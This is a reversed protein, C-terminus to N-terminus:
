GRGTAPPTVTASRPAILAASTDNPQMGTQISGASCARKVGGVCYVGRPCPTQTARTFVSGRAILWLHAELLMRRLAIHDGMRCSIEYGAEGTVSLRGVKARILGIDFNGCGMFSLDGVPGDTLREIVARSNPGSLSIGAMEEGLDRITVVDQMHDDFWRMHWRRLYYSGMIWWTGDGWNFLTLDGKLRGDHGLAM